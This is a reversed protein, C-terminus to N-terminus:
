DNIDNETKNENDMNSPIITFIASCRCNPHVPPLHETDDIPYINDHGKDNGPANKGEGYYEECLPCCEPHCDVYYGTAGREKAVIYNSVTKARKVETRAITRARTSNINDIRQEIDKAIDYPAKDDKFGQKIIDRVSQKIDEGVNTILKGVTNEITIQTLKRQANSSYKVNYTSQKILRTMVEQYGTVILPNEVVYESHAALYDEITDYKEIDKTLRKKIENFLKDTYRIGEKILKDESVM